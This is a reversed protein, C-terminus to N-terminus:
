SVDSSRPISGSKQKRKDDARKKFDSVNFKFKFNPPAFSQERNDTFLKKKLMASKCAFRQGECKACLSSKKKKKKPM